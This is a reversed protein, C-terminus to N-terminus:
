GFLPLDDGEVFPAQAIEVQVSETGLDLEKLPVGV